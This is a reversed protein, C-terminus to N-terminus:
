SILNYLYDVDLSLEFFMQAIKLPYGYSFAEM